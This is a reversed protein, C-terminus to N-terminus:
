DATPAAPRRVLWAVFLWASFTDTWPCSLWLGVAFSDLAVQRVHPLAPPARARPLMSRWASSTADISTHPPLLCSPRPSALVPSRSDARARAKLAPVLVLLKHLPTAAAPNRVWTNFASVLLVGVWWALLPLTFAPPTTHCACDIHAGGEARLKADCAGQERVMDQMFESTNASVVVVPSAVSAATPFDIHSGAVRRLEQVDDWMGRLEIVVAAAGFRLLARAADRATCNGEASASPLETLLPLSGNCCAAFSVTGCLGSSYSIVPGFPGSVNMAGDLPAWLTSIAPFSQPPAARQWRPDLTVVAQEHAEVASAILVLARLARM